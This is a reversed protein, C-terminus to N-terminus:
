GEEDHFPRRKGHDPRAHPGRHGGCSPRGFRGRPFVRRITENFAQCQEEDLLQKIDLFHEVVRQQKQAHLASVRGLQATVAERDPRPAAMLEALVEHEKRLERRLDHVGEIMQERLAETREVQDPTLDLEDLLDTHARGGGRECFDCYNRYTRVGFTTGVGLNFALSAILLLWMSKRRLWSM